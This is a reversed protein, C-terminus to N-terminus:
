QLFSYLLIVIPFWPSCIFPMSCKLHLANYSKWTDSVNKFLLQFTLLNHKLVPDPCQNLASFCFFTCHQGAFHLLIRWQLFMSIFIVHYPLGTMLPWCKLLLTSWQLIFLNSFFVGLQKGGHWILSLWAYLSMIQSVCALGGAGESLQSQNLLVFATARRGLLALHIMETLVKSM